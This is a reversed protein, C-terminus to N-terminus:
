GDQLAQTSNSQISTNIISLIKVREIDSVKPNKISSICFATIEISKIVIKIIKSDKNFKFNLPTESLNPSSRLDALCARINKIESTNFNSSLENCRLLYCYERLKNNLYSLHM